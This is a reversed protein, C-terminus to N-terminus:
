GQDHRQVRQTDPAIHPGSRVHIHQDIQDRERKAKTAQPEGREQPRELAILVLIKFPCGPPNHHILVLCSAPLRAAGTTPLCARGWRPSTELGFRLPLM